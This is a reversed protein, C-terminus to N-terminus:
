TSSTTDSSRMGPPLPRAARAVNRCRFAVVGEHDYRREAVFGQV